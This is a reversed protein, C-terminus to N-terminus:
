RASPASPEPAIIELLHAQNVASLRDGVGLKAYISALHRHVTRPSCDALRAIVAATHGHALLQLIEIERDTLMSVVRGFSEEKAESVRADEPPADRTLQLLKGLGAVVPQVTTLLALDADTFDVGERGFVFTVLSRGGHIPLQALQDVGLSVLCGARTASQLWRDQGYARAATTPTLDGEAVPRLFPKTLQSRIQRSLGARAAMTGGIVQANVYPEHARVLLGGRCDLAPILMDVIADIRDEVHESVQSVATVLDVVVAFPDRTGM